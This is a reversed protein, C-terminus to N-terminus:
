EHEDYSITITCLDDQTDMESYDRGTATYGLAIKIQM